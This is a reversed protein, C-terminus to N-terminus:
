LRAKHVDFEKLEARAREKLQQRLIKGAASKPIADVVAVGGRLYKHKAVKKEMWKQVEKGFAVLDGTIPRKTTDLVIYARPLETAESHSDIGIVAADAINPHTLIIDELEAPSVQFGKYKILEKKRGVIYYFGEEDRNGIDGTKFWGDPTIANATAAPNNLYGQFLTGLKRFLAHIVKSFPNPLM